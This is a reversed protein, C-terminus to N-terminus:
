ATTAALRPDGATVVPVHSRGENLRDNVPRLDSVAFSRRLWRDQGDYRPTFGTRGHVARRNDVVVLDGPRLVIGKLSRRMAQELRDLAREARPTQAVTGHFDVHLEPCRDPGTLVPMPDTLVEVTEDPLFSTSFRTRFEPARLVSVTEDDLLPLADLVSGTVTAATGESDGRLCLLSLFHPPHPHFGDETHLELLVSGSNEQRDEEGKKPCVDQVLHGSKEDQYSFSRGLVSMAMLQVLTAVPVEPWAPEDELRDPTAPLAGLPLGTLLLCGGTNGEDRFSILAKHAAEPLAAAALEVAHLLDTDHLSRGANEGALRLAAQEIRASADTDIRVGAARLDTYRFDETM